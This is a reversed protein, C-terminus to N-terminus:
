VWCWSVSLLCAFCSGCWSLLHWMSRTIFQHDHLQETPWHAWCGTRHSPLLWVTRYGKARFPSGQHSLCSATQLTPSRPEIGPDPLDEWSPCPLGSWYEQRSFGMSLPAQCAVTWPTAFLLVCSVVLCSVSESELELCVPEEPVPLFKLETFHFPLQLPFKNAGQGFKCRM